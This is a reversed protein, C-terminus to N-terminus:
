CARIRPSRRPSRRVAMNEFLYTWGAGVPTPPWSGLRGPVRGSSARRDRDRWDPVSLAGVHRRDCAVSAATLDVARRVLGPAAASVPDPDLLLNARLRWGPSRRTSRSGASQRLRRWGEAEAGARAPRCWTSCHQVVRAGAPGPRDAGLGRRAALAEGRLVYQDGAPGARDTERARPTSSPAFGAPRARDLWSGTPPTPTRTLRAPRRIRSWRRARAPLVTRHGRRSRSLRRCRTRGADGRRDRRCRGPRDPRPGWSM